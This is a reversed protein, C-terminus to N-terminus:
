VTLEETRLLPTQAPELKPRLEEEASLPVNPGIEMTVTDVTLKFTIFLESEARFAVLICVTNQLLEIVRPM